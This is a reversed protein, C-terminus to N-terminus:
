HYIKDVIDEEREDRSEHTESQSEEGDVNCLKSFMSDIYIDQNFTDINGCCRM